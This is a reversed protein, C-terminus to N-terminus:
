GEILDKLLHNDVRKSTSQTSLEQLESISRYRPVLNATKKCLSACQASRQTVAVPRTQGFTPKSVWLTLLSLERSPGSNAPM